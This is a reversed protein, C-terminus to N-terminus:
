PQSLRERLRRRVWPPLRGSQEYRSLVRQENRKTYRSYRTLLATTGGVGVGLSLLPLAASPARTGSLGNILVAGTVVVPLALTVVTSGGFFVSTKRKAQFLEHLASVTDAPPTLGAGSTPQARIPLHPGGTLLLAVLLLRSSIPM